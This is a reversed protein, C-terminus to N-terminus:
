GARQGIDLFTRVRVTGSVGLSAIIMERRYHQAPNNEAIDNFQDWHRGLRGSGPRCQSGDGRRRPITVASGGQHGAADGADFRAVGGQVRAANWGLGRIRDANLRVVPIDGKWGRNGGTYEFEVTAPDLGACEAALRGIETVTIYDTAVNYAAFRTTSRLAGAASRGGRRSRSHVVQEAHRRGSDEAQAPEEGTAAPFRLRSRADAAARRRQRVPVVRGTFDFMHCYSTILAEGALKSAGYTSIPILPGYDEPDGTRGPRRLVGSGSAYLITTTGTRRMAEVVNNTLYTGERFDIDPESAARAIDPNSALHIVM